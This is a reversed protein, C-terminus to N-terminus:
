HPTSLNRQSWFHLPSIQPSVKTFSVCVLGQPSHLYSHTMPTMTTMTMTTKTTTKMTTKTAMKTTTKTATKAVMKTTMMMKMAMTARSLHHMSIPSHIANAATLQTTATKSLALKNLLIIDPNYPYIGVVKWASKV